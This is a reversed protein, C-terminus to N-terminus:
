YLKENFIYEFSPMTTYRYSDNPPQHSLITYQLNDQNLHDPYM